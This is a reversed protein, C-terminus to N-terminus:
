LAKRRFLSLVIDSTPDIHTIPTNRIDTTRFTDCLHTEGLGGAYTFQVFAM